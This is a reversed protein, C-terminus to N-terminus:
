FSVCDRYEPLIENTNLHFGVNIYKWKFWPRIMNREFFDQKDHQVYYLVDRSTIVRLFIYTLLLVVDNIDQPLLMIYFIWVKWLQSFRYNQHQFISSDGFRSKALFILCWSRDKFWTSMKPPIKSVLRGRLGLNVIIVYLRKCILLVNPNRYTENNQNTRRWKLVFWFM